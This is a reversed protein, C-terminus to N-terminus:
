GAESGTVSQLPAQGAGNAPHKKWPQDGGSCKDQPWGDEGLAKDPCDTKMARFNM